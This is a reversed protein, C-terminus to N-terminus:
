EVAQEPPADTNWIESSIKWASDPQRKCILVWKGTETTTDGGQKPAASSIYSVRLYAMDGSIQIDEVTSSLEGTNNSFFEEANKRIAEKGFTISSQPPMQVVDDTYFELWAEVDNVSTDYREIMEKLVQVDVDTSVKSETQPTEASQCAYALFLFALVLLCTKSKM